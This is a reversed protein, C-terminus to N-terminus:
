SDMSSIGTGPAGRAKSMVIAGIIAVLLLISAMEFPLLYRSFLAQGVQESNTTLQGLAPPTLAAEGFRFSGAGRFLFVSVLLLLLTSCIVAIWGQSAFRRQLMEERLPVLMIVFLYLVTIGGIYVIVQVGALFEAAQLLFLGATGILANILWVAAYVVNRRTIMLISSVLILIAFLYFLVSDLLM